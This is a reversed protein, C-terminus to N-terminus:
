ASRGLPVRMVRQVHGATVMLVMGAAVFPWPGRTTEAASSIVRPQAVDATYPLQGYVKYFSAAQAPGAGDPAAIATHRVGAVTTGAPRRAAARAATAAQAPKAAVAAPRGAPAGRKATGASQAAGSSTDQVTRAVRVSPIELRGTRTTSRAVVVIDVLRASTRSSDWKLEFSARSLPVDSSMSDVPVSRELTRTISGAPLVYLDIRRVGEIAEAVGEIQRIGSVLEGTSPAGPELHIAVDLSPIVQASATGQAGMMVIGLVASSVAVRGLTKMHPNGESIPARSRSLARGIAPFYGLRSM